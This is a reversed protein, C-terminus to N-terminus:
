RFGAIQSADPRQSLVLLLNSLSYDHFSQIFDLYRTWRESQRLEDIQDVISAHLKEAQARRDEASIAASATRNKPRTTM